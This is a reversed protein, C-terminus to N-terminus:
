CCGPRVQDLSVTHAYFDSGSARNLLNTGISYVISFYVGRGGAPCVLHLSCKHQKKVHELQASLSAEPTALLFIQATFHTRWHGMFSLTLCWGEGWSCCLVNKKERGLGSNGHFKFSKKKKKKDTLSSSSLWNKNFNTLPEVALPKPLSVSMHMCVYVSFCYTTHHKLRKRRLFVPLFHVKSGTALSKAHSVAFLNM